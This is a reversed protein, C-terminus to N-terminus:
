THNPTWVVFGSGWNLAQRGLKIDLKAGAYEIYFRDLSLYDHASSIHLTDNEHYTYNILHLIEPNLNEREVIDAFANQSSWGQGLGAEVTANILINKNLYGSFTPRTREVIFFPLDSNIGLYNQIRIEAFGEVDQAFVLHHLLLFFTMKFKGYIYLRVRSYREMYALQIRLDFLYYDSM